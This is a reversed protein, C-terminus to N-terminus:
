SYKSFISITDFDFFQYRLMVICDVAFVTRIHKAYDCPLFSRFRDPNSLSVILYISWLLLTTKPIKRKCNFLVTLTICQFAIDLISLLSQCSPTNGSALLSLNWFGLCLAVVSEAKLVLALALTKWAIRLSMVRLDFGFVLMWPQHVHLYINFPPFRVYQTQREFPWGSISTPRQINERPFCRDQHTIVFAPQNGSAAAHIVNFFRQRQRQRNSCGAYKKFWRFSCKICLLYLLYTCKCKRLLRYLM